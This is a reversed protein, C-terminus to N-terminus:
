KKLRLIIISKGIPGPYGNEGDPKVIQYDGETSCYADIARRIAPQVGRGKSKRRCILSISDLVDKFYLWRQDLPTKQKELLKNLYRQTENDIMISVQEQTLGDDSTNVPAHTKNNRESECWSEFTLTSKMNEKFKDLAIQQLDFNNIKDENCKWHAFALNEPVNYKENNNLHEWVKKWLPDGEIFRQECFICCPEIGLSTYDRHMVFPEYKVKQGQTLQVTGM